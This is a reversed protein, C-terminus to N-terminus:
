RAAGEAPQPPHVGRIYLSNQVETTCDVLSLHEPDTFLPMCSVRGDHPPELWGEAVDVITLGNESLDYTGESGFGEAGNPFFTSTSQKGGPAFTIRSWIRSERAIAWWEGTIMEDPTQRWPERAEHARHYSSDALREPPEPNGPPFEGSGVCGTLELVVGSILADCNVTMREFLWGDDSPGRLVLKNGRFAFNGFAEHGEVSSTDGGVSSTKLVFSREFCIEHSNFYGAEASRLDHADPDRHWCGVLLKGFQTGTSAVDQPRAATSLLLLTLFAILVRM